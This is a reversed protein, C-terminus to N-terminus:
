RVIEIKQKEGCNLTLIDLPVVPFWPTGEREEMGEVGVTLGIGKLVEVGRVRELGTVGGM